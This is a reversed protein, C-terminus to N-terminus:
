SFKKFNPFIQLNQLMQLNKVSNERFNSIKWVSKKRFNQSQLPAFPHLDQLAQFISDFAYKRAFNRKSGASFSGALFKCFRKCIKSVRVPPRPGERRVRWPGARCGGGRPDAAGSWFVLIRPPPHVLHARPARSRLSLAWAWAHFFRM